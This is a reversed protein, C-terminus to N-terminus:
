EKRLGNRIKALCILAMATGYTRGLEHSDVFCGDIEPIQLILQRQQKLYKDHLKQNTLKRIADTRGLMDFWFFFGGYSLAAHDDYKRTQELLKHHEFSLEISTKLKDQTSEGWLLLALECMPM